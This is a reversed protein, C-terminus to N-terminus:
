FRSNVEIQLLDSSLKTPTQTTATKPAMSDILDASMWRASVWTNKYIGYSGGLVYGKTNTGGMGFDSNTFADLVADSGLWRYALSVNWDGQNVILPQGVTLKGLYGSGSGDQVSSGTRSEMKKRDFALNRVYDGTLVVHVPDFMALDLSGTLNLERFGSALGWYTNSGLPNEAWANTIFLTNGRQRM